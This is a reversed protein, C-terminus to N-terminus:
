RRDCVASVVQNKLLLVLILLQNYLTVTNKANKQMNKIIPFEIIM